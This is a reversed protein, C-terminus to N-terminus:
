NNIVREARQSTRVARLSTNIPASQSAHSTSPETSSALRAAFRHREMVTSRISAAELAAEIAMTAKATLRECHRLAFCLEGAVLRDYGMNM